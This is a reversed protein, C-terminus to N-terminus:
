DTDKDTLSCGRTRLPFPEIYEQRGIQIKVKKEYSQLNEKASPSPGIYQYRQHLPGSQHWSLTELAIVTWVGKSLITFYVKSTALTDLKGWFVTWHRMTCLCTGLTRPLLKELIDSVVFPGHQLVLASLLDPCVKDQPEVQFMVVEVDINHLCIGTLHFILCVKNQPDSPMVRMSPINDKDYEETSKGSRYQPDHLRVLKGSRYESMITKEDTARRAKLAVAEGCGDVAKNVDWDDREFFVSRPIHDAM